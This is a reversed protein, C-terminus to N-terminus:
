YLRLYPSYRLSRKSSSAFRKARVLMRPYPSRIVIRRRWSGAEVGWPRALASRVDRVLRCERQGERILDLLSAEFQPDGCETTASANEGVIAGRGLLQQDFGVAYGFLLLLAM